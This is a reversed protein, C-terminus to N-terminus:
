ESGGQETWYNDSSVKLLAGLFVDIAMLTGSIEEGYPIGWIKSLAMLLTALAPVVIQAMYKLFDYTDSGMQFKM